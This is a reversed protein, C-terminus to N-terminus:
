NIPFFAPVPQAGVMQVVAAITEADTDGAGRTLGLDCMYYEKGTLGQPFVAYIAADSAMQDRVVSPADINVTHPFVSYDIGATLPLTGAKTWRDCIDAKHEEFDYQAVCLAFQV